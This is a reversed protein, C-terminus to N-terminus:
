MLQAFERRSVVNGEKDKFERPCLPVEREASFTDVHEIGLMGYTSSWAEEHELLREVELQYWIPIDQTREICERAASTIDPKRRVLPALKKGEWGERGALTKHREDTLWGVKDLVTHAFPSVIPSNPFQALLSMLRAALLEKKYRDSTKADKQRSWPLRALVRRIDPQPVGDSDLLLQCFKADRYSDHEDIKLYFGLAEVLNWQLGPRKLILGDDGEFVAKMEDVAKWGGVRFHLFACLALNSIGNSVSTWMDGSLRKNRVTMECRGLASKVKKPSGLSLTMMAMLNNKDKHHEAMHNFFKQECQEQFRYTFSCEFNSYDTALYPGVTDGFIKELKTAREQVTMGKVFWKFADTNPLHKEVSKVFPGYVVKTADTPGMILRVFTDQGDLPKMYPEDKPFCNYTLLEEKNIGGKKRLTERVTVLQEKYARSYSTSSLWQEFSLWGDSPVPSFYKELFRDMFTGFDGFVWPYPNGPLQNPPRAYRHWISDKFYLPDSLDPLM